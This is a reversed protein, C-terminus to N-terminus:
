TQWANPLDFRANSALEFIKSSTKLGSKSAFNLSVVVQSTKLRSSSEGM